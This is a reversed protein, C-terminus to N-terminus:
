ANAKEATKRIVTQKAVNQAEVRREELRFHKSVGRLLMYKVKTQKTRYAKYVDKRLLNLYSSLFGMSAPCSSENVFSEHASPDVRICGLWGGGGV